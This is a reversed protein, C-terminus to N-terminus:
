SRGFRGASVSDLVSTTSCTSTMISEAFASASTRLPAAQRDSLGRPAGAGPRRQDYKWSGMVGRLVEAEGVPLPVRLDGSM